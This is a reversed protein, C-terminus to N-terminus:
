EGFKMNRSSPEGGICNQTPYCSDCPRVHITQYGKLSCYLLCSISIFHGNGWFLLVQYVKLEMALSLCVSACAQTMKKEQKQQKKQLPIYVVVVLYIFLCFFLMAENIVKKQRHGQHVNVVIASKLSCKPRFLVGTLRLM